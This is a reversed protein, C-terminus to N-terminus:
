IRAIATLIFDLLLALSLLADASLLVAAPARSLAREAPAWLAAMAVTILAGWAISMPLCIYGRYEHPYGCYSWLRIGFAYESLVGTLLEAATALFAAGAAYALLLLLNLPYPRDKLPFGFLLRVFLLSGGYIPCFPLRLFGRDANEGYLFLFTLKEMGWGLFSFVFFLLVIALFRRLREGKTKSKQTQKM